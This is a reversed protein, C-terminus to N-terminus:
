KVLKSCQKSPMIKNGPILSWIGNFMGDTYDKFYEYFKFQYLCVLSVVKGQAKSIEEPIQNFHPYEQQLIFLCSKTIEPLQEEYYDPLQEQSLFSEIIHLIANMVGYIDKIKSMDQAYEQTQAMQTCQGLYHILIQSFQEIVYNIERYLDDSRFM